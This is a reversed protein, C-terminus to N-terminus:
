YNVIEPISHVVERCHEIIRTNRAWASILEEILQKKNTAKKKKISSSIEAHARMSNHTNNRPTKRLQM